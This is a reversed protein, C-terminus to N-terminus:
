DMPNKGDAINMHIRRYTELPMNPLSRDRRRLSTEYVFAGTYNAKEFLNRLHNWDIDGDGPLWHKEDVFDYDSIHTTAIRDGVAKFMEEHTSMLLHNVDFCLRLRDNVSLIDATEEASHCLCTRPLNEVCIYSDYEAAFNALENVNEKCLRVREPRTSPDTINDESPHIVFLHIDAASARKILYKLINMGFLATEPVTIDPRDGYPLHVSQIHIGHSEARKQVEVYDVPLYDEWNWGLGFECVQIGAAAMRELNEDTFNGTSLGTKCDKLKSM